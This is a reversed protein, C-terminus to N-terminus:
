GSEKRRVRPAPLELTIETGMGPESRIVLIGQHLEVAAKAIALGIGMGEHRRTM